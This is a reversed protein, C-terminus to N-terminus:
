WDHPALYTNAYAGDVWDVNYSCKRRNIISRLPVQENLVAFGWSLVEDGGNRASITLTLQL